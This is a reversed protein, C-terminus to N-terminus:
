NRKFMRWKKRGNGEKFLIKGELERGGELIEEEEKEGGGKINYEM